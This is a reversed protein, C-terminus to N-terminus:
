STEDATWPTGRPPPLRRPATARRAGRASRAVPRGHPGRRGPSGFPGAPASRLPAVSPLQHVPLSKRRVGRSRPPAGEHTSRAQIKPYYETRKAARGEAGRSTGDVREADRRLEDSVGTRPGEDRPPAVVERRAATDFGTTTATPRGACAADTRLASTALAPALAATATFTAYLAGADFLAVGVRGAADRVAGAAGFDVTFSASRVAGFSAGVLGAGLGALDGAFIATRARGVGVRADATASAGFRGTAFDIPAFGILAFAPTAVGTTEVRNDTLRAALLGTTLTFPAFGTLKAAPLDEPRPAAGAVRRTRM